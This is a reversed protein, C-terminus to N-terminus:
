AEMRDDTPPISCPCYLIYVTQISQSALPLTAILQCKDISISDIEIGRDHELVAFLEVLRERLAVINERPHGYEWGAIM